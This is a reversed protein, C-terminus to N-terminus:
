FERIPRTRLKYCVGIEGSIGKDMDFYTGKKNGCVSNDDVTFSSWYNEYVRNSTYFNGIGNLHLNKYIDVLQNYNPLKWDSYGNYILNECYSNAQSWSKQIDLDSVIFGHLGDCSLGGIIGGQYYQGVKLPSSKSDTTFSIENGFSKGESNIVYGRVYYTTSPNLNNITITISSYTPSAGTFDSIIRTDNETVGSRTSYYVGRETIESKGSDAIYINIQGSVDKICGLTNEIVANESEVKKCEKESKISGISPNYKNNSIKFKVNRERKYNNSFYSLGCYNYLLSNNTIVFDSESYDNNQVLFILKKFGSISELINNNEININGFVGELLNLGNISKLSINNNIKIGDYITKVSNLSIDTLSENESIILSGEIRGLNNLSNIEELENNGRITIDGIVYTINELGKLNKLSKNGQIVLRSVTKLNSLKSLDKISNNKSESIILTAYLTECGKSGYADVEEQSTLYVPIRENKKCFSFNTEENNIRDNEENSSCSFFLNLCLTTFALVTIKKM